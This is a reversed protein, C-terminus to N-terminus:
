LAEKPSPFPRRSLIWLGICASSISGLLIAIKSNQAAPSEGFALTTIFISMTFGIGGLFGLGLLDRYDMESALKAFRARIAIFSFLLIGAPKGLLLGLFIGLTNATIANRLIEATIATGTNALAFIPMILFAVPKHLAHQLRYSPTQPSGDRFPLAFALLVGSLSAHIGSQSMWYWLLLGPILYAAIHDVGRWNLLLLFGFM